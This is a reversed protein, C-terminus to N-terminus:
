QYKRLHGILFVNTGPFCPVPFPAAFDTNDVVRIGNPVLIEKEDDELNLFLLRASNRSGPITMLKIRFQHGEFRQIDDDELIINPGLERKTKELHVSGSITGM